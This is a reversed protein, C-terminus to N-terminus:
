ITTITPKSSAIRITDGSFHTISSHFRVEFIHSKAPPIFTPDPWLFDREQSLVPIGTVELTVIAVVSNCKNSSSGLDAM